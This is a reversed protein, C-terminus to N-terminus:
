MAKRTLFRQTKKKIREIANDVARFNIGLAHSIHEYSMNNIRCALVRSEMKSFSQGIMEWMEKENEGAIVIELPDPSEGSIVDILNVVDDRDSYISAAHNLTQHKKRNHETLSGLVQARVCLTVYGAFSGRVPNFGMIAKYLGIMSEQRLDDTDAGPLSINMNRTKFWAFSKFQNMLIDMAQSDGRQAIAILDHLPLADDNGL